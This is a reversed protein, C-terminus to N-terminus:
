EGGLLRSRLEDVSGWPGFHAGMGVIAIPQPKKKFSPHYTVSSKEPKKPIWEEILLHANIGGFGFASIAAR